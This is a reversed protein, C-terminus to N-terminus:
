FPNTLDEAQYTHSRDKLISGRGQNFRNLDLSDKGMWKRVMGTPVVLVYFILALLVGPVIFGLIQAIGFWLFAVPRFVIPLILALALALAAFGVFTWDEWLWALLLAALSLLIGTEIDQKNTLEIKNM